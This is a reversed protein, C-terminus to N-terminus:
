SKWGSNNIPHKSIILDVAQETSYKQVFGLGRLKSCDMFFDPAQVVQHFRPTPVLNIRSKSGTKYIIYNMIDYIRVSETSGINYITNMDGKELVLNIARCVDEVHLYNRFNDGDYVNIDEDRLIKGVLFEFANKKADSSPDGGIVNCLRMIRYNKNFTDCYSITLQEATRKTISYFGKPDCPSKETAAKELRDYGNGYVFWSSIFNFTKNTKPLVSMLHMLNTEIDLQPNEFVNYNSSTSIFYLADQSNMVFGRPILQCKDGYMRMFNSGIFGTGGYVNLKEM